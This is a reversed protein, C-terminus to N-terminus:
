VAPSRLHWDTTQQYADVVSCLFLESWAPGILQAGLPMGEPSFGVPFAIAPLGAGNVPVTCRTTGTADSPLEEQGVRVSTSDVPPAVYPTAPVLLADVADFASELMRRLELVGDRAAVFDTARLSHGFRLLARTQETIREDDLVDAFVHAAEALLVPAVVNRAGEPDLGEVEEVIAGLNELTRAAAEIAAVVEPAVLRFWSRPLGIKRGSVSEAAPVLPSRRSWVDDPDFGHVVDFVTACDAASVALPGATDLSPALPMAGRLSIAGHTPKLGTVGCFSAPIRISGGTDSGMALPFVGGAVAAGSGGSSGGPSRTPDWPNRVPGFSSLQSDTGLALEHQNTKAVVIAGAARLSEVVHADRAAVRDEFAACSGTTRVGTVDYLEKVAIPVGHLPGIPGTSELDRARALADDPLVHTFANTAPEIREIGDLAAQVLEVPSVSGDAVARAQELLTRM